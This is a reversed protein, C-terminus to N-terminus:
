KNLRHLLGRRPSLNGTVDYEEREESLGHPEGGEMPVYLVRDSGLKTWEEPALRAALKSTVATTPSAGLPLTSSSAARFNERLSNVLETNSKELTPKRIVGAGATMVNGTSLICRSAMIKGPNEKKEEKARTVTPYWHRPSIHRSSILTLLRPLLFCLIGLFTQLSPSLPPPSFVFLYPPFPSPNGLM